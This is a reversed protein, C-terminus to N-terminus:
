EFSQSRGDTDRANNREGQDIEDGCRWRLDYHSRREFAGSKLIVAALISFCECTGVDLQFQALGGTCRFVELKQQIWFRADLNGKHESSNRVPFM